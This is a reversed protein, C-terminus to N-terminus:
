IKESRGRYKRYFSKRKTSIYEPNVYGNFFATYILNMMSKRSKILVNAGPMFEGNLFSMYDNFSKHLNEKRLASLNALNALCAATDSDFAKSFKAPIKCIIMEGDIDEHSSVAFYLAALPNLTVDLLRTPFGYHQLKVLKDLTTMGSFEEPHVAEIERLLEFENQRIEQNQKRFLSPKFEYSKDAHGRYVVINSGDNSGSYVGISEAAQNITEAIERFIKDADAENAAVINERLDIIEKEVASLKEHVGRLIEEESKIRGASKRIRNLYYELNHLKNKEM